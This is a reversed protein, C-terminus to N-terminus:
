ADYDSPEFRLVTKNLYSDINSVQFVPRTDEGSHYDSIVRLADATVKFIAATYEIGEFEQDSLYATVIAQIAEVSDYHLNATDFEFQEVVTHTSFENDLQYGYLTATMKMTLVKARIGHNVNTM